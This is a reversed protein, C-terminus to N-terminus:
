RRAGLVLAHLLHGDVCATEDWQDAHAEARVADLRPLSTALLDMAATADGADACLQAAHVSAVAWPM